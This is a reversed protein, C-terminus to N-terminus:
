ILVGTEKAIKLIIKEKKHPTKVILDVKREIGKKEIKVLFKLEDKLSTEKDTEIFIDIDGGKRNIDARSGFIYV